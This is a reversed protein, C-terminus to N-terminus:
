IICQQILSNHLGQYTLFQYLLLKQAANIHMDALQKGSVLMYRDSMKMTSTFIKVREGDVGAEKSSDDNEIGKCHFLKARKTAPTLDIV